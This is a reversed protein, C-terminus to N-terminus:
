ISSLYRAVVDDLDHIEAGYQQGSSTDTIVLAPPTHAGICRPTKCDDSEVIEYHDSGSHNVLLFEVLDNTHLYDKPVEITYNNRYRNEDM